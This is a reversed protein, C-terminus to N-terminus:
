KRIKSMTTDARLVRKM